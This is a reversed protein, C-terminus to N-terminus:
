KTPQKQEKQDKLRQAAGLVDHEIGSSMQLMASDDDLDAITMLKKKLKRAGNLEEGTMNEDFLEAMAYAMAKEFNDNKCVALWFNCLPEDRQFLTKNNM